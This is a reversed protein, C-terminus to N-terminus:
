RTAEEFADHIKGIFDQVQYISFLTNEVQDRTLFYHSPRGYDTMDRSLGEELLGALISAMRRANDIPAEFLDSISKPREAMVEGVPAAAVSTNLSAKNMEKEKEPNISGHGPVTPATAPGKTKQTM